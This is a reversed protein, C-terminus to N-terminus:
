AKIYIAGRLQAKVIHGIGSTVVRVDDLLDVETIHHKMMANHCGRFVVGDEQLNKIENIHRSMKITLMEIAQGYAVVEINLPEGGLDNILNTLHNMLNQQRTIDDHEFDVVLTQQTTQDM